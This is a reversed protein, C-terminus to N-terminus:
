CQCCLPASGQGMASPDEGKDEWLGLLLASFFVRAEPVRKGDTCLSQRLCGQVDCFPKLQFPDKFAMKNLGVAM